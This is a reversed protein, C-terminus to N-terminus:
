TIKLQLLISYDFPYGKTLLLPLDGHVHTHVVFVKRASNFNVFM